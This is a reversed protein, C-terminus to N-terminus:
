ILCEAVQLTRMHEALTVDQRVHAGMPPHELDPQRPVRRRLHPHATCITSPASPEATM